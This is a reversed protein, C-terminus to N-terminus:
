DKKRSRELALEKMKKEIAQDVSLIDNNKSGSITKLKGGAFFDNIEKVNFMWRGGVMKCPLLGSNSSKYIWWSSHPIRSALEKVSEWRDCDHYNQQATM